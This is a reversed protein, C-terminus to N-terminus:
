LSTNNQLGILPLCQKHLGILTLCQETSWDSPSMTITSWYSPFRAQTSKESNPLECLPMAFTCCYVNRQRILFLCLKPVGILYLKFKSILTDETVQCVVMVAM